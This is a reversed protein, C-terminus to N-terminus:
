SKGSAGRTSIKNANDRLREAVLGLWDVYTMEPRPDYFGGMDMMAVALESDPRSGRLEDILSALSRLQQSTKTSSTSFQDVVGQWDDAELVWDQHFYAGFFQELEYPVTRESMAEPIGDARDM